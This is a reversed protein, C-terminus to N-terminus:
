TSYSLSQMQLPEAGRVSAGCGLTKVKRSVSLTASSVRCSALARCTTTTPLPPIAISNTCESQKQSTDQTTRSSYTPAAKKSLAAESKQQAQALPTPEESEREDDDGDRGATPMNESLKVFVFLLLSLL